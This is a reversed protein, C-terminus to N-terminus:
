ATHSHRIAGDIRIVEGNLMINECIHLALSAFDAPDGFHDNPVPVSALLADLFEEPAAMLMPTEFNGPAITCARVGKPALDRAVTITMGVVGAKAATYAVTGVPGDLANISSVNIIVGREGRDLPDLKVMESAALRTVNFAGVLNVQVLKQFIDLPHPGRKGATRIGPGGIAACNVLIRAPGHAAAALAIGAQVSAEDTIDVEAFVGNIEEAVQKGREANLDFIGVKGGASSLARATAEGLGSAGGTVISAQGEVKM